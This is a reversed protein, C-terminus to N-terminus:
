KQVNRSVFKSAQCSILGFFTLMDARPSFRINRSKTQASRILFSNEARANQDPSLQIQPVQQM